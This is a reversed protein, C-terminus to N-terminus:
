TCILLDAALKGRAEDDENGNAENSENAAESETSDGEIPVTKM